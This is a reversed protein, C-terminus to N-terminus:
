LRPAAPRSEVCSIESYIEVQPSYQRIREPKQLHAGGIATATTHHGTLATGQPVIEPLDLGGTGTM